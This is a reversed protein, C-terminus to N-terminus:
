PTRKHFYYGDSSNVMVNANIFESYLAKWQSFTGSYIIYRLDKCKLFAGEGISKVSDPIVIAELETCGAFASKGISQLHDPIKIGRLATCGAFAEDGITQLSDPLHVTTLTQCDAFCGPALATVTEGHITEPVTLEESGDYLSQNFFLVGDEISFCGDQRPGMSETIFFLSLGVVIMISTILLPPWLRGVKKEPALAPKSIDSSEPESPKSEECVPEPVTGIAESTNEEGVPVAEMESEPMSVGENMEPIPEAEAAAIGYPETMPPEPLAAGCQYCFKHHDECQIGCNPCFM